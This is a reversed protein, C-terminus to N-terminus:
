QIRVDTKPASVKAHILLGVIVGAVLSAVSAIGLPRLEVWVNRLM